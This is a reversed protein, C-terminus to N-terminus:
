PTQPLAPSHVAVAAAYESGAGTTGLIHIMPYALIASIVGGSQFANESATEYLYGIARFFSKKEIEGVFIIQVFSSVLITLGLSFILRRPLSMGSHQETYYASVLLIPPVLIISFGFMGRVFRHLFFWGASGQIFAVLFFLIAATFLIVSQFKQSSSQQRSLKNLAEEKSSRSAGGSQNASAKRGTTSKKKKTAALKLGKEKKSHFKYWNM